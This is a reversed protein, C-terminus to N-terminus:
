APLHSNRRTDDRCRLRICWSQPLGLMDQRRTRNRPSQQLLARLKEAVIDEATGVRLPPSGGLIVSEAACVIENLSIDFPIAQPSPLGARMRGALPRQDPLAYGVTGGYTIFPKAPNGPPQQAFRQVALTLDLMAAVPILAHSLGDRLYTGIRAPMWAPDLVAM